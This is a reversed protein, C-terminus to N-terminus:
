QNNIRTQHDFQRLHRRALHKKATALPWILRKTYGNIFRIAIARTLCDIARRLEATSQCGVTELYAETFAEAAKYHAPFDLGFQIRLPHCFLLSMRMFAVDLAGSARIFAPNLTFQAPIPDLIVFDDDMNSFVNGHWFDGHLWGVKFSEALLEQDQQLLDFEQLPYPAADFSHQTASFDQFHMRALLSGLKSFVDDNGVLQILPKPFRCLEYDITGEDANLRCPKPTVVGETQSCISDLIKVREWDSAASRGHTKRYKQSTM